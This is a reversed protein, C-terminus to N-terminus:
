CLGSHLWAWAAPWSANPDGARKGPLLGSGAAGLADLAQRAQVALAQALALALRLALAVRQKARSCVCFGLNPRHARTCM